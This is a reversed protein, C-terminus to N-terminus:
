TNEDELKEDTDQQVKPIFDDMIIDYVEPLYFTNYWDFLNDVSNFFYNGRHTSHTLEV